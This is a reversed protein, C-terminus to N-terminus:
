STPTGPEGVPSPIGDEYMDPMDDEELTWMKEVETLTIKAVLAKAVEDKHDRMLFCTMYAVKHGMNALPNLFVYAVNTAAEVAEVEKLTMDGLRYKKGEYTFVGRM